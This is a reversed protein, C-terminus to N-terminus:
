YKRNKTDKLKEASQFQERNLQNKKNM